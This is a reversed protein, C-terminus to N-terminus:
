SQNQILVMMTIKKWTLNKESQKKKRVLLVEGWKEYFFPVFLDKVLSLAANWCIEM